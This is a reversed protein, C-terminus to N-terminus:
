DVMAITSPMQLLRNNLMCVFFLVSASHDSWAIMIVMVITAEVNDADADRNRNNDVAIDIDDCPADGMMIM